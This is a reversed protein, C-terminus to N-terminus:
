HFISQEYNIEEFHLSQKLVTATYGLERYAMFLVRVVDKVEVNPPFQIRYLNGDLPTSGDTVSVVKHDSVRITRLLATPFCDLVSFLVSLAGTGALPPYVFSVDIMTTGDYVVIAVDYYRIEGFAPTEKRSLIAAWWRQLLEKIKRMVYIIYM